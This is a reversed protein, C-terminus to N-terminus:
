YGARRYAELGGLITYVELYGNEVLTQAAQATRLGSRDYLVIPRSKDAPLESLRLPLEQMPIQVAFDLHGLDDDWEPPLRVDLLFADSHSQLFAFAEAAGLDRIQGRPAAPAAASSGGAAESGTPTAPVTQPPEGGGCGALALALALPILRRVPM